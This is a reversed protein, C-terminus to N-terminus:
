SWSGNQLLKCEYLPISRLTNLGYCISQKKSAYQIWTLFKLIWLTMLPLVTGEAPLILSLTQSPSVDIDLFLGGPRLVFAALVELGQGRDATLVVQFMGLFHVPLFARTSLELATLM